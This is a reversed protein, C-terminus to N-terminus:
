GGEARRRDDGLPSSVGLFEHEFEHQERRGALSKSLNPNQELERPVVLGARDEQVLDVGDHGLPEAAALFMVAPMAAPQSSSSFQSTFLLRLIFVSNSIWISPTM